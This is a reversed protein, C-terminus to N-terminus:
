SRSIRTMGVFGFGTFCHIGIARLLNDRVIAVAANGSIEHVLTKENITEKDHRKYILSIYCYIRYM